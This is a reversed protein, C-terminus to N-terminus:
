IERDTNSMVLVLQFHRTAAFDEALNDEGDQEGGHADTEAM